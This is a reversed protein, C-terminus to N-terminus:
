NGPTHHPKEHIQFVAPNLRLSSVMPSRSPNQAPRSPSPSMAGAVIPLALNYNSEPFHLLIECGELSQESVYRMVAQTTEFDRATSLEMTWSNPGIFLLRSKRERLLVRM